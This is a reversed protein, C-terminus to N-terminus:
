ERFLRFMGTKTKKIGYFFPTKGEIRSMAKSAQGKTKFYGVTRAM